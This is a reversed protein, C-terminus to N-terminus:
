RGAAALEKLTERLRAPDDSALSEPEYALLPLVEEKTGKGTGTHLMCGRKRVEALLSKDEKLWQPWLRITEVGAEAFAAIDKQTPILAIQKAEPLLKRFTKAHELSRVGLVVRKPEGHKRVLAVIKEAYVDGSEKLDLMVGMKGKCLELLERLTPIRENAYKPDFRTGFDLAKLEALTLDKIHGKGNSMRSIEGDHSLVLEGDKTTRVDTEGYDAMVEIARRYSSLTNEPRDTCSGRHGIIEKVKKAAQAPNAPEEAPIALLLGLLLAPFALSAIRTFRLM